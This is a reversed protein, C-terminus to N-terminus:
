IIHYLNSHEIQCRGRVMICVEGGQSKQKKCSTTKPPASSSKRTVSANRTNQSFDSTNQLNTSPGTQKETIPANQLNSSDGTQEEADNPTNQFNFSDGMQEEVEPSPAIHNARGPTWNLM